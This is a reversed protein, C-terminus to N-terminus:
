KLEEIEKECIKPYKKGRRDFEIVDDSHYHSMKEFGKGVDCIISIKIVKGRFKVKDGINYKMGTRKTEREKIM